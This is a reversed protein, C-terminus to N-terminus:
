QQISQQDKQDKNKNNTNNRAMFAGAGFDDGPGGIGKQDREVVNKSMKFVLMKTSEVSNAKFELFMIECQVDRKRECKTYEPQQLLVSAAPM